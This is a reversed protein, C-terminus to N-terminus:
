ADQYGGDFDRVVNFVDLFNPGKEVITYFTGPGGRADDAILKHTLYGALQKRSVAKLPETHYFKRTVPRKRDPRHMTVTYEVAQKSM